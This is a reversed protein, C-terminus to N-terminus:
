AGAIEASVAREEAMWMCSRVIGGPARALAWL